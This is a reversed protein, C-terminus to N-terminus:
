LECKNLYFNFQERISNRVLPVIPLLKDLHRRSDSYTFIKKTEVCWMIQELIDFVLIEALSHILYRNSSKEFNIINKYDDTTHAISYNYVLDETKVDAMIRVIERDSLPVGNNGYISERDYISHILGANIVTEDCGSKKLLHSTQILHASHHRGYVENKDIEYKESLSKLINM